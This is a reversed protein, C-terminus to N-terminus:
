VIAGHNCPIRNVSLGQIVSRAVLALANPKLFYLVVGSLLFLPYIACSEIVGWLVRKFIADTIVVGVGSACLPAIAARAQEIRFVILVTITINTTFPLAFTAPVIGSLM